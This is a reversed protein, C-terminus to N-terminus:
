KQMDDKSYYVKTKGNHYPFRAEVVDEKDNQAEKIENWIKRLWSKIKKGM